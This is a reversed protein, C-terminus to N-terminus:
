EVDVQLSKTWCEEDVIMIPCGATKYEKAKAIKLGWSGHKWEPSGLAGVVLYNLKMTVTSSIKGGQKKIVTECRERPGYVFDGTLCFTSRTISLNGIVDCALATAHTGAALDPGDSGVLDLLTKLLHAREDETIIGDEVVSEIRALIVNGPWQTAAAQNNVLWDRLFYIEQDNLHRDAVLGQAIGALAGLSRKIENFYRGRDRGFDM